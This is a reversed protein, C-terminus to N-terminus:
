AICRMAGGARDQLGQRGAEGPLRTPLCTATPSGDRHSPSFALEMMQMPEGRKASAVRAAVRGDPRGAGDLGNRSCAPGSGDRCRSRETSGASQKVLHKVLGFPECQFFVTAEPKRGQIPGASRIRVTLCPSRGLRVGSIGAQPVEQLLHQPDRSAVRDHSLGNWFCLGCM